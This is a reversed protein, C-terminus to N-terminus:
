RASWSRRFANTLKWVIKRILLHWMCCHSYRGYYCCRGGLRCATRGGAAHYRLGPLVRPGLVRRRCCDSTGSLFHVNLVSYPLTTRFRRSVLVKDKLALWMLQILTKTKRTPLINHGYVRLREDMDAGYATLSSEDDNDSPKGDDSRREPEADGSAGDEGTVVINPVHAVGKQGGGGSEPSHRHSAGQGAGAEQHQAEGVDKTDGGSHVAMGERSTLSKGSLGQKEDSGLGRLLGNIGGMDVLETINKPDVLSALANPRFAFVGPDIEEDEALNIHPREEEPEDSSDVKGDGPGNANRSPSRVTTGGYSSEGDFQTQTPSLDAKFDGLRGYPTPNHSDPETGEM